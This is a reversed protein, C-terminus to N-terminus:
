STGILPTFLNKGIGTYLFEYLLFVTFMSGSKSAETALGGTWYWCVFFLVGCIILYPIESVILAFTFAKWSYMKAKKERAEFLDRRELFTPQLQNIVGPAVFIANFIFFLTLQM